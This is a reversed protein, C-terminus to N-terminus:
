SIAGTLLLLVSPKLENVNCTIAAADCCLLSTNIFFAVFLFRMENPGLLQAQAWVDIRGDKGGSRRARLPAIGTCMCGVESRDKEFMDM